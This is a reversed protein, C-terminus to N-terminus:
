GPRPLDIGPADEVVRKTPGVSVTPEAAVAGGAVVGPAVHHTDADDQGLGLDAGRDTRDTGVGLPHLVEAELVHQGVVVHDPGIGLHVLRPVAGVVHVGLKM